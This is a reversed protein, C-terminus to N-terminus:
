FARNLLILVMKLCFATSTDSGETADVKNFVMEVGDLTLSGYVMFSRGRDVGVTVKHNGRIEVDGTIVYMPAGTTGLDADKLLNIM